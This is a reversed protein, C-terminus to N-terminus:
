ELLSRSGASRVRRQWVLRVRLGTATPTDAVSRSVEQASSKLAGVANLALGIDNLRGRLETAESIKAEVVSQLEAHRRVHENKQEDMVEKKVEIRAQLHRVMHMADRQLERTQHLTSLGELIEM